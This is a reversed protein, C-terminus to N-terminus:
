GGGGAGGGSSGCCAVSPKSSGGGPYGGAGSGSVRPSAWGGTGAVVFLDTPQSFKYIAKTFGGGGGNNNDGGGGAGWVKITVTTDTMIGVQGGKGGGEHGPSTGM